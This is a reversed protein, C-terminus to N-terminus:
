SVGAGRLDALLERVTRGLGPVPWDPAIEGLPELVFLREHLRPHPVMLGPESVIRDGYLLLDISYPPYGMEEEFRRVQELMPESIVGGYDFIVLEVPVDGSGKPTM